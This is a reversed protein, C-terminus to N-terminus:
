PGRRGAVAHDHTRNDREEVVSTVAVEFERGQYEMSASGDRHIVLKDITLSPSLMGRSEANSHVMAPGQVIEPGREGVIGWKGGPIPGGMARFGAFSDLGAYKVAEAFRLLDEIRLPTAEEPTDAEQDTFQVRQGLEDLRQQLTFIDGGLIGKTPLSKLVTLPAGVGQVDVIDGLLSSRDDGLTGIQDGLSPIIEDRLADRRRGRQVLQTRVDGLRERSDKVIGRHKQIAGRLQKIKSQSRQKRPKGMEESLQERVKGIRKQSDEIKRELKRQERQAEQYAKAIRTLQDGASRKMAEAAEIREAMQEQAEVLANRLQFRAELEQTLWSSETKGSGPPAEGEIFEQIKKATAPNDDHDVLLPEGDPGTPADVTLAGARNAFEYAVEAVYSTSDIRKQLDPDLGIGSVKNLINRLTKRRKTPKARGLKRLAAKSLGGPSIGGGGQLGVIGGLMYPSHTVQGGYRDLQYNISAAISSLPDFMDSGLSPEAYARMNSQTLHMLGGSPNGAKANSDWNNISSPILSSEAKGLTLLGSASFSDPDFRGHAASRSTIDIARNALALFAGPSLAGAGSGLNGHSASQSRLLKIAARYAEDVAGQGADKLPGDPGELLVRAIEKAIGGTGAGLIAAHIHDMHGGIAGIKQGSDYGGWPDYFLEELQNRFAGFIGQAAGTGPPVLDVAEGRGHFSDTDGPRLGSSVQLGYRDNAFEALRSIGPQLGAVGGEAFRPVAQNIAHIASPGGMAAVIEPAVRLEGPELLVRAAKKNIFGTGPPVLDPVKDGDGVGPVMAVGGTAFLNPGKKGTVAETWGFNLSKGSKLTKLAEVTNQGVGKLAGLVAEAMSGFNGSMRKNLRKSGDGLKDLDKDTKGLERGTKKGGDEASKGVGKFAELASQDLSDLANESKKTGKKASEGVGHFAERAKQDMSGFANEVRGAAKRVDGGTADMTKAWDKLDGQLLGLDDRLNNFGPWRFKDTGGFQNVFDTIPNEGRNSWYGDFEDDIQRAIEYGMVGGIIGGATLGFLRWSGAAAGTGAGAATEAAVTTAIPAGMAVGIQRGVIKFAAAGGIRKLLWGGLVLKGLGDASVFAKVFSEGAVIALDGAGEAVILLADDISEAIAETIVGVKTKLNGKKFEPTDVISGLAEELEPGKENVFKTAELLTDKLPEEFKEFLAIETTEISGTLQEWAGAVNDQMTRAAKDAAGDSNEFAKTLKELKKPGADIITFMGSAAERGFLMSLAANKQAKSMGEMNQNLLAIIEPLPKLGNPGQLDKASLGMESLAVKAQGVPNTLSLMAARLSTGAQEGKIGADGMLAVAATMGEFSQGTAKAIPGIYKMTLQLDTMEISSANVAKAMVDAVHGSQGASLGFGRLANSSIEAASALDINSAAALDLTGKIAKSMEGVSFGASSLEYMAQASEAASFKTDAGLQKALDGLKSMQKGTADSVAQVRSMEKEYEVGTKITDAIALAMLGIGGIAAGKAVTGLQQLNRKQQSAVSGMLSVQRTAGTATRGMGGFATEAAKLEAITPGIGKSDLAVYARAIEFDAM